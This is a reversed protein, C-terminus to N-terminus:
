PVTVPGPALSPTPPGDPFGDVAATSLLFTAVVLVLVVMAVAIALPEALPHAAATTM